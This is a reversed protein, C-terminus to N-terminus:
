DNPKTKPLRALLLSNSEMIRISGELKVYAIIKHISLSFIESEENNSLKKTMNLFM